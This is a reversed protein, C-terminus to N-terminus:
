IKENKEYGLVEIRGVELTNDELIKCGYLRNISDDYWWCDFLSSLSFQSFSLEKILEKTKNSMVIYVENYGENKKEDIAQKIIKLNPELIYM